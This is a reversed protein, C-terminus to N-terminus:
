APDGLDKVLIEVSSEVHNYSYPKSEGTRRFGQGIWFPLVDSNTGVVGARLLSCSGWARVFSELQRLADEGIGQRQHEEDILLLGIHATREEPFGRLLDICGVMTQGSFIGFVFKDEYGKGEPLASYTSQADARVAPAGTVRGFYSPSGEFVRQLAAMEEREGQLLRISVEDGQDTRATDAM